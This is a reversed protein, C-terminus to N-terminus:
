FLSLTNQGGYCLREHSVLSPPFWPHLYLSKARGQRTPMWYLSVHQTSQTATWFWIARLHLSGPADPELPRM